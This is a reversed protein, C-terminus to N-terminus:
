GNDLAKEIGHPPNDIDLAFEPLPTQKGDQQRNFISCLNRVRFYSFLKSNRLGFSIKLTFYKEPANEYPALIYISM